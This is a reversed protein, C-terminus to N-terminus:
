IDLFKQNDQLWQECKKYEPLVSEVKNWFIAGHNKEHIHALEHVVVYEIAELPAMVLRWTFNINTGSCSGWRTTASTIKFSTYKWGTTTSYLEAQEQIIKHAMTKYWMIIKKAPNTLFKKPFRLVNASDIIEIHNCDEIRLSYPKGLYLFEEGESYEKIRTQKRNVLMDHQKKEIWNKKKQLLESIYKHPTRLPARVILLANSTVM